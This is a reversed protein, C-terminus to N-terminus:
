EARHEEGAPSRAYGLNYLDGIRGVEAQVESWGEEVRPSAEIRGIIRDIEEAQSVLSVAGGRLEHAEPAQAMNSFLRSSNYLNSLAMYLRIVDESQQVDPDDQVTGMRPDQRVNDWLRQAASQLQRANQQVEADAQERTETAPAHGPEQGPTQAFQDSQAAAPDQKDQATAPTGALVPLTLDETLHFQFQQEPEFVVQEGPTVLVATAGAGAGVVAGIVAGRLGGAIAGIIAGAAGGGGIMGRQRDSDPEARVEINNTNLPYVQGDRRLEVLTLEISAGRDREEVRVLRGTVEDGVRAAVRGESHLDQDLVANFHDGTRNRESSIRDTLRVQIATGEELSVQDTRAQSFAMPSSLFLVLSLIVTISTRM